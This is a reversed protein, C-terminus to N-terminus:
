RAAAGNFSIRHAAELREIVRCRGREDFAAGNFRHPSLLRAIALIGEASMRVRGWQLRASDRIVPTEFGEANM